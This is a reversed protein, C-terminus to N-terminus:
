DPKKSFFRLPKATPSPPVPIAKRRRERVRWGLLGAVALTYALPWLMASVESLWFFHVCALISVLYVNRHLEQWRRGGLKRLALQNSTAALPILLLFAAFGVVVFPHKSVDRAISDISFDNAFGVFALFHLTAYFFVFLGLMRRLRILRHWQTFTRLPTISVTLLLFNFTWIGTWRQVFEVPEGAWDNTSFAWLLRTVPLLCAAFLCAKILAVHRAQPTYTM